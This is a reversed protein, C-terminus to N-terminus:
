LYGEQTNETLSHLDHVYIDHLQTHFSQCPMLIPNLQVATMHVPLTIWFLINQITVILNYRLLITRISFFIHRYCSALTLLRKAATRGLKGRSPNTIFILVFEMHLWAMKMTKKLNSLFHQHHHNWHIDWPCGMM